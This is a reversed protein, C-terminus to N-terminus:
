HCCAEVGRGLGVGHFFFQLEFAFFKLVGLVFTVLYSQEETILQTFVTVKQTFIMKSDDVNNEFSSYTPTCSTSYKVWMSQM